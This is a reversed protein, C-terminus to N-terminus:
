APVTFKLTLPTGAPAVAVSVGDERVVEPVSVKDTLVVLAM